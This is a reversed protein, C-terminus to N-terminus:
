QTRFDFVQSESSNGHKDHTIVKWYYVEDANLAVDEIKTSTTNKLLSTPPNDVSLYVDYSEIDNDVDGGDWELSVISNTLGGMPPSVVGAPFPAYNEVPLGANYLKWIESTATKTTGSAKSVVKWSYAVGRTLTLTIYTNSTSNETTKNSELNKLILVYNDTNESANWEFEVNSEEDSIINGQNCETNKLPSVLVAAEPNEVVPIDPDDGGGGCSVVLALISIFTIKKLLNIM